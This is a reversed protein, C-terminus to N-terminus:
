FDHQFRRPATASPTNAVSEIGRLEGSIQRPRPADDLLLTLEGQSAREGLIERVWDYVPYITVVVSPKEADRATKTGGCGALLAALLCITLMICVTKKM